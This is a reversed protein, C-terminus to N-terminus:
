WRMARLLNSHGDTWGNGDVPEVVHWRWPDSRGAPSVQLRDFLSPGGNAFRGRKRMAVWDASYKEPFNDSAWDGCALCELDLEVAIRALEPQLSVYRNTTNFILVGGDALKTLYLEIAERTLLHMPVADSSFADLLLAHYYQERPAKKITLRGDGMVIDLRAGRKLADDVYYFILDKADGSPPVSLRKIIPDIEYFDVHQFPTAHAALTGTGLGIVAFPVQAQTGALQAWPSVAGLGVLSAPQRADGPYFVSRKERYPELWEHYRAGWSETSEKPGRQPPDLWMYEKMWADHEASDAKGPPNGWTLKHFIEGIGNTPHFYTIPHRRMFPPSVIQQGHNIVGHILTRRSEVLADPKAEGYQRVRVLGFFGRAEFIHHEHTRDFVGVALFLLGVALGFRVPRMAMALALVVTGAMLYSRRMTIGFYEEEHYGTKVMLYAFGCFALPVAFDLLMELLNSSPWSRHLFEVVAQCAGRLGPKRPEPRATGASYTTMGLVFLVADFVLTGADAIRRPVAFDRGESVDQAMYPRLLCAVVMALPYEVIGYPLALPAILANFVGGLVGGIAMWLYFETLHRVSPRDKALEGHCMLTTSFFAALHLAFEGWTPVTLHSVMRLVLFLLLMPQLYLVITHPTGTWVLPWRAFALIFTLLYLELPMVWIFPAAAIDTTLYTTSGLMLSVPVAALLVWRLRRGFTIADADHGTKTEGKALLTWGLRNWFTQPPPNAVSHPKDKAALTSSARVGRRRGATVATSAAVPALIPAPAEPALPLANAALEVPAPAPVRWVLLACGIVLALLLVYGVLWVITQENVDWIPEILTPYLLLGLMSGLNSAGYLFYPDKAAPHGTSGFWKQLLPASTAVVFFPLGVMGLLVWLVRYVTLGPVDFTTGAITVTEETSPDWDGMAFPLFGLLPLFLLLSQVVLQRRRSQTTTLTHTYAYGVLLVAQFFVMCTNWVAPTGGLHPLIMKGVMPQVVFLLTASVFLTLSFFLLV